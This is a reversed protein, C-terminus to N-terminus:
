TYQPFTVRVHQRMLMREANRKQLSKGPMFGKSYLKNQRVITPTKEQVFGAADGGFIRNM